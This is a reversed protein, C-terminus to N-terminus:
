GASTSCSTSARSGITTCAPQALAAVALSAPRAQAPESIGLLLLRHRSRGPGDGAGGFARRPGRGTLWGGGSAAPPPVASRLYGAAIGSGALDADLVLVRRGTVQPWVWGLALATTTVGPSGKASCLAIVSM